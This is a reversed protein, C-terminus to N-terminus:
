PLPLSVAYSSEEFALVVEANEVGHARALNMAEASHKFNQAKGSEATWEQPQCFYLGTTVDRLLVRMTITLESPEPQRNLGPLLAPLADEAFVRPGPLGEFDGGEAFSNLAPM